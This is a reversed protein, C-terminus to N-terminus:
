FGLEDSLWADHADYRARQKQWALDAADLKQSIEREFYANEIQQQEWLFEDYMSM